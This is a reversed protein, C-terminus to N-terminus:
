AKPKVIKLSFWPKLMPMIVPKSEKIGYTPKQKPTIIPIKSPKIWHPILKALKVGIIIIKIVPCNKSDFKRVGLKIPLFTSSWGNHIIKPMKKKPAKNPKKPTKKDTGRVAIDETKILYKKLRFHFFM